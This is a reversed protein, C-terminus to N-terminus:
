YRTLYNFAKSFHVSVPHFLFYLRSEFLLFFLCCSQTISKQDKMLIFLLITLGRLGLLLELKWKCNGQGKYLAGRRLVALTSTINKYHCTQVRGKPRMNVSTHSLSISLPVLKETSTIDGGSFTGKTLRSCLCLCVSVCVSLCAPQSACFVISASTFLHCIVDLNASM